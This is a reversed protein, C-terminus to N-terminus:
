TSDAIIMLVPDKLLFIIDLEFDVMKILDPVLVDVKLSPKLRAEEAEDGVSLLKM